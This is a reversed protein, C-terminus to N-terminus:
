RPSFSVYREGRTDSEGLGVGVTNGVEVDVPDAEVIGTLRVPGFAAVATIYPTDEAFQPAAVSVTTYTRIEGAEPLPTESLERSGCHPCVRRPPLSGHGDPCELYYGEGRDIADLLDDYGSDRADADTM